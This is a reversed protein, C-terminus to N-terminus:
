PGALVAPPALNLLAQSFPVVPSAENQQCGALAPEEHEFGRIESRNINQVLRDLLLLQKKRDLDPQHRSVPVLNWRYDCLQSISSLMESASRDRKDDPSGFARFVSHGIRYPTAHPRCRSSETRGSHCIKNQSGM